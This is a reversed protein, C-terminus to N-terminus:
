MVCRSAGLALSSDIVTDVCELTSAIEDSSCSSSDWVLGVTLVQTYFEVKACVGSLMVDVEPASMLTQQLFSLRACKENACRFVTTNALQTCAVCTV